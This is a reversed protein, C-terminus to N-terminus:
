CIIHTHGCEAITSHHILANGVGGNSCQKGAADMRDQVSSIEGAHVSGPLGYPFDFSVQTAIPALITWEEDEM